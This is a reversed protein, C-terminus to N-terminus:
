GSVHPRQMSEYLDAPLTREVSAWGLFDTRNLYEIAGEDIGGFNFAVRPCEKRLRARRGQSIGYGSCFVLGAIESLGLRKVNQDDFGFGLIARYTAQDIAKKAREFLGAPDEHDRSILKLGKAAAKAYHRGNEGYPRQEPSPKDFDEIEGLLGYVHIFTVAEKLKQSATKDDIGFAKKFAFHLFAELSRDYNFTVVTLKAAGAPNWTMRNFLLQYWDGRLRAPDELPLLALAIAIKGIEVFREEPRTEIFSDISANPADRFESLFPECRRVHVDDDMDGRQFPRALETPSLNLIDNRLKEGVPYGYKLSAGAGLVLTTPHVFV